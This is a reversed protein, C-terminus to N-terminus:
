KELSARSLDALDGSLAEAGSCLPALRLHLGSMRGENGPLCKFSVATGVGIVSTQLPQEVSRQM